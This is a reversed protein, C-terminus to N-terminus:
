TNHLRAQIKANTLERLADAAIWKASSSSQQRIRKAVEIAQQNLALNRKGIQRLAWNVAKKVYERQDHAEQEILPFFAEFTQDGANKEHVALAAMLVFGSRKVFEETRRSWEVAKTLAYSTKRFLNNICQDTVDWSNFGSAWADMQIATVLKPDDIMSALIRAEHIGSEWLQQALGHDKGLTKAVNRLEPISVGLAKSVEIGYRAMGAKREPQSLSQLRDFIEQLTKM